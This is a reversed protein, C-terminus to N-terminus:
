KLLSAILFIFTAMYIGLFLKPILTEKKLIVSAKESNEDLDNMIDTRLSFVRSPLTREIFNIVSYNIYNSNKYSNILSLWDWCVIIGAMLLLSFIFASELKIPGVHVSQTLVTVGISNIAIFINNSDKRREENKQASEILLKYQEFLIKQIEANNINFGSNILCGEIRANVFNYVDLDLKKNM